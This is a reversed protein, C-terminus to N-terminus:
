FWSGNSNYYTTEDLEWQEQSRAEETLVFDDSLGIGSLAFGKGIRFTVATVEPAKYQKKNKKM